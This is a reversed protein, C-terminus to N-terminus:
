EHPGADHRIVVPEGMGREVCDRLGRRLKMMLRRIGDVSRSFATALAGAEEDHGYYRRVLERQEGTLRDLCRDLTAAQEDIDHDLLWTPASELVAALQGLATGERTRRRFHNMALNRSIGKLWALAEVGEPIPNTGRAYAVYVEQAIDDVDCSAVGLAAIYSRLQSQTAVVLDHIDHM